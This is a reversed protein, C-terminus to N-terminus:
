LIISNKYRKAVKNGSKKGTTTIQRDITSIVQHTHDDKPWV